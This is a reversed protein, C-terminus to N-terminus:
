RHGSAVGQVHLVSYLVLTSTFTNVSSQKVQPYVPVAYMYYSNNVLTVNVKDCKLM